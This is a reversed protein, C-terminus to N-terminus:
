IYSSSRMGRETPCLVASIINGSLNNISIESGRLWSARDGTHWWPFRERSRMISRWTLRAEEVTGIYSVVRTVDQQPVLTGNITRLSALNARTYGRWSGVAEIRSSSDVAIGLYPAQHRKKCKLGYVIFYISLVNGLVTKFILFNFCIITQHILINYAKYIIKHFVKWPFYLVNQFFSYMKIIKKSFNHTIIHFREKIM